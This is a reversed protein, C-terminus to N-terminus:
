IDNPASVSCPLNGTVSSAKASLPYLKNSSIVPAVASSKASFNPCHIVLPTFDEVLAIAPNKFSGLVIDCTVAFTPFNLWSSKILNVLFLPIFDLYLFFALNYTDGDAYM